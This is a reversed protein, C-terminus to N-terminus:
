LAKAMHNLSGVSQFLGQLQSINFTPLSPPLLPHSPQIADGVWHVRTQAFEPLSYLVSFGPMSCDVPDCLILCLKAVSCYCHVCAFESISFNFRQLSWQQTNERSHEPVLITGSDGSGPVTGPLILPPYVDALIFQVPEDLDTFDPCKWLRISGHCTGFPGLWRSRGFLGCPGTWGDLSPHQHVLSLATNPSSINCLHPGRPARVFPTPVTFFYTVAPVSTLMQFSLCPLGQRSLYPPAEQLPATPWGPVVGPPLSFVGQCSTSDLWHCASTICLMDRESGWPPRWSGALEFCCWSSSERDQLGPTQSWPM